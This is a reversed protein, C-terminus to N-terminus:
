TACSIVTSFALRKTTQLPNQISLSFSIKPLQVLVPVPGLLHSQLQLSRFFVSSNGVTPSKYLKRGKHSETSPRHGCQQTLRTGTRTLTQPHTRTHTRPYQLSSRMRKSQRFYLSQAPKDGAVSHASM